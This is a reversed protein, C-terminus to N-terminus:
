GPILGEADRLVGTVGWGGFGESVAMTLTNEGAQLRLPVSYSRTITGLYRYDRSRWENAGSFILAGNLFVRVRDSYGFDLMVIRARDSTLITEALVTNVDGDRGALRALNAIGEHEAALATRGEPLADPLVFTEAILSEPFVASVQWTEILRGNIDGPEAPHMDPLHDAASLPNIEVNRIWSGTQGFVSLAFDGSDTEGILEPIDFVTEGDLSLQAQSGDVVLRVHVWEGVPFDIAQWYGSGTYIQWGSLGNLVPTYQASDPLGSIHHRLYVQEANEEDIRFNIASFGNGAEMALDFELVFDALEAGDLRLGSQYLRLAEENRYNATIPAGSVTWREGFVEMQAGDQAMVAGPLSAALVLAAIRRM